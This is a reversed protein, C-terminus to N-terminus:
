DEDDIGVTLRSIYVYYYRDGDDYHAHMDDDARGDTTDDHDGGMIENVKVVAVDAMMVDDRRIHMVLVGDGDTADIHYHAIHM